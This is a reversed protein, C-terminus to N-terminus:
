QQFGTTVIPQRAKDPDQHGEELQGVEFIQYGSVEKKLHVRGSAHWSFHELKGGEASFSSKTYKRQSPIYTIDGKLRNISVRGVVFNQEQSRILICYKVENERNM